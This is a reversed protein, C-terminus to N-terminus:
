SMTTSPNKYQKPIFLTYVFLVYGRKGGGCSVFFPCGRESIGVSYLVM